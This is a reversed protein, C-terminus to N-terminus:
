ECDWVEATFAYHTYGTEPEYIRQCDSVLIGIASLAAEVVAEAGYEERTFLDIAVRWGSHIARSGAFTYLRSTEGWVIYDGTEGLAENHYLPLGPLALAEKFKKFDGTM